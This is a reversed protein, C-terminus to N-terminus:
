ITGKGELVQTARPNSLNRVCGLVGVEKNAEGCGLEAKLLYFLKLDDEDLPAGQGLTQPHPIASENRPTNHALEQSQAIVGGDLLTDEDLGPLQYNVDGDRLTDSTAEQPEPIIGGDRGLQVDEELAHSQHYVAGNLLSNEALAQPQYHVGEDSFGDDDAFPQPQYSIDEDLLGDEAPAQFQHHAGEDIRGDQGLAQPQAISDRGLLGDEDVAESQTNGSSFSSVISVTSASEITKRRKAGKNKSQQASDNERARKSSGKTRSISLTNSTRAAARDKVSEVLSEIIAKKDLEQAGKDWVRGKLRESRADNLGKNM